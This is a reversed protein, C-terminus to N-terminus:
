YTRLLSFKLIKGLQVTEAQLAAKALANAPLTAPEMESLALFIIIMFNLVFLM